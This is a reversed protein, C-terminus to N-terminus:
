GGDRLQRLHYSLLNQPQGLVTVLERVRLDSEALATLLQWRLPHAALQVFAPPTAQGPPVMDPSYMLSAQHISPPPETPSSSSSAVGSCRLVGARDRRSAVRAHNAM